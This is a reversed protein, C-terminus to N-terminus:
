GPLTGGRRGRWLLYAAMLADPFFNTARWAAERLADWAPWANVVARRAWRGPGGARGLGAAAPAALREDAIRLAARAALAAQAYVFLALSLARAAPGTWPSERGGRGVAVVRGVVLGEPDDWEAIWDGRTWLRWGTAGRTKWLLRHVVQSPPEVGAPVRVVLDAFRLRDAPVREVAVRDGDKLVFTM